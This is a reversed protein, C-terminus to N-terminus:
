SYGRALCHRSHSTVTGSSPRQAEASTTRSGISEIEIVVAVPSCAHEEQQRGAFLWAKDFRINASAVRRCNTQWGACKFCTMNRGTRTRSVEAQFSCNEFTAPIGNHGVATEKSLEYLQPYHDGRTHLGVFYLLDVSSM